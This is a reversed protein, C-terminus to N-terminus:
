LINILFGHHSFSYIANTYKTINIITYYTYYVTSNPIIILSIIRWDRSVSNNYIKIATDEILMMM